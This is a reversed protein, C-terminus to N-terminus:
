LEEVLVFFTQGFPFMMYGHMKHPFHIIFVNVLTRTLYLNSGKKLIVCVNEVVLITFTSIFIIYVAVTHITVSKKTLVYINEIAAGIENRNGQPSILLRVHLYLEL